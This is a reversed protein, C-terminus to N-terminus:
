KQAESKPPLGANEAELLMQNITREANAEHDQMGYVKGIARQRENSPTLFACSYLKKSIHSQVSLLRLSLTTSYGNSVDSDM